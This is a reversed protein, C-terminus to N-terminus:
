LTVNSITVNSGSVQGILATMDAGTVNTSVFQSNQLVFSYTAIYGLLLGVNSGTSTATATISLNSISIPSM